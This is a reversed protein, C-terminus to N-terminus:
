ATVTSADVHVLVALLVATTGAIAIVAGGVLRAMGISAPLRVGAFAVLWLICVFPAVYRYEVVVLSYLGLGSLVPVLLPWSRAASKLCCSPHAATLYLVVLSTSLNLQWFIGLFLYVVFARELARVEERLNFHAKIGEHWYSPDYWLPYTGGIPKRFEYIVPTELVRRVPNMLTRNNPFFMEVGQVSVEYNVKASEGFTARGKAHSIAVIFPGSFALFVLLSSGVQRALGSVNKCSFIPTALFVFGLPFMAAKTLYGLGLVAGLLLFTDRSASGRRIRLILGSALYVFAAVCMDPTVLRLTILTLSTSIFLTYGLVLWAWVPLGIESPEVSSETHERSRIFECLFFEFCGLAAVYVLFNVLHVVPFEWYASPKLVKLFFGLIWSYLPSWYANIANHFDGRWYADGIDLYSIGDPNMTFRTAWADAAGLATAACWFAIRLWKCSATRNTMATADM